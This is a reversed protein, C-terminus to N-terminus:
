CTKRKRGLQSRSSHQRLSSDPPCCPRPSPPLARARLAKTGPSLLSLVLCSLRLSPPPCLLCLPTSAFRRAWFEESM